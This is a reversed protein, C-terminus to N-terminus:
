SVLVAGISAALAREVDDVLRHQGDIVIDRGGVTVTDVDGATAAFVVAGIAESPYTGALRVSDLSVTVLDAPEGVALTGGDWGLSRWGDATAARLLTAPSHVGRQGRTLREGLEVARAEEFLDIVAQSDSGLCLRAGARRLDAAPGIGDALDRETTPCLSVSVAASGLLRMDAANVHTAHVATFRADLAGAEQLLATPTVGYGVLCESNEAPQESVHAHLPVGRHRAWDAVVRAEHPAVARVSHIAAAARAPTAVPLRRDENRAVWADVSADGFRLQVGDRRRGIGGHLYCADLLTIRVGARGAAEILADGMTNAGDHLYHFEGVVTIGALAMEAYVATALELYRDPELESAAAYMRDRWTWFSGSGRHTRGRLVRHFAHSHTNALGPLTLGRRREVGSPAGGVGSAISAIQGDAIEVLVESAPEEDGLWALECWLTRRGLTTM